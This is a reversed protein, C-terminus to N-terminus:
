RVRPALPSLFQETFSVTYLGAGVNLVSFGIGQYSQGAAVSTVAGAAAPRVETVIGSTQVVFTGSIYITGPVNSLPMYKLRYPSSM